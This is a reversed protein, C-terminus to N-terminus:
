LPASPLVARPHTASDTAMVGRQQKVDAHRKRGLEACNPRIRRGLDTKSTELVHWHLSEDTYKRAQHQDKKCGSARCRALLQTPNAVKGRHLPRRLGEVAPVLGRLSSDVLQPLH